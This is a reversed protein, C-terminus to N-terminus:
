LNNINELVKENSKFCNLSCHNLFSSLSIIIYIFINCIYLVCFRILNYSLNVFDVCTFLKIFEGCVKSLTKCSYLYWYIDVLM